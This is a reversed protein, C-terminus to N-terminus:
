KQWNVIDAAQETGEERRDAGLSALDYALGHAGPFAYTYPKGWILRARKRCDTLPVDETDQPAQM